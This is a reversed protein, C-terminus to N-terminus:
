SAPAVPLWGGGGGGGAVAVVTVEGATAGAGATAVGVAVALGAAVAVGETVEPALGEGAAVTTDTADGTLVAAADGLAVALGTTVATAEGVGTDLTALLLGTDDGVTTATRDGLGVVVLGTSAGSVSPSQCRLLQATDQSQANQDLCSIYM